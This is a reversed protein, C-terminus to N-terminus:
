EIEIKLFRNLEDQTMNDANDIKLVYTYNDNIATYYYTYDYNYSYSGSVYKYKM